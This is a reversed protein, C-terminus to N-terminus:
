QRAVGRVVVDYIKLGNPLTKYDEPAIADFKASRGSRRLGLDV